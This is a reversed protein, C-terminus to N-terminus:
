ESGSAADRRQIASRKEKPLGSFLRDIEKPQRMMQEVIFNIARFLSEASPADDGDDIKGPHVADNGTVRVVDMLKQVERSVGKRVLSGIADNLNDSDEGLHRCLMEVCLRLLAMAARPSFPSVSRAEEFVRRVEKPMNPHPREVGQNEPFVMREGVWLAAESCHACSSAYVNNLDRQWIETKLPAKDCVLVRTEGTDIRPRVGKKNMALTERFHRDSPRPGPWSKIMGPALNKGAERAGGCLWWEQKAYVGCYPCNFATKSASPTVVKGPYEM